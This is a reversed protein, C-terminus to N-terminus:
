ADRFLTRTAAGVTGGGAYWARTARPSSAREHNASWCPVLNAAVFGRRQRGGSAHLWRTQPEIVRAECWAGPEPLWGTEEWGVPAAKPQPPGWTPERAWSSEPAPPQARRPRLASHAGAPLMGRRGQNRLSALLRQVDDTRHVADVAGPAEGFLTGGVREEPSSGRDTEPTGPSPALLGDASSSSAVSLARLVGLEKRMQALRTAGLPPSSLLRPPSYAPRAKPPAHLPASVPRQTPSQSTAPTATSPALLTSSADHGERKTPATQPRAPSPAPSSLMRGGRVPPPRPTIPPSPTLRAVLSNAPPGSPLRHYKGSPLDYAHLLAPHRSAGSSAPLLLNSGDSAASSADSRNDSSDDSSDGEDSADSADSESADVALDGRLGASEPRDPNGESDQEDDQDHSDHQSVDDSSSGSRGGLQMGARGADGRQALQTRQQHDRSLGGPSGYRASAGKARDLRDRGPRELERGERSRGGGNGDRSSEEELLSLPPAKTDKDLAHTSVATASSCSGVSSIGNRQVAATSCSSGAAHSAEDRHGAEYHAGEYYAVAMAGAQPMSAGDPRVGSISSVMVTASAEEVGSEGDRGVVNGQVFRPLSPAAKVAKGFKALGVRGSGRASHIGGLGGTAGGRSAGFADIGTLQQMARSSTSSGCGSRAMLDALDTALSGGLADQTEAAVTACAEALLQAAHADDRSATSADAASSGSLRATATAASHGACSGGAPALGGSGGRSGNGPGQEGGSPVKGLPGGLLAAAHTLGPDSLLPQQNAGTSTSLAAALSSLSERESEDLRRTSQALTRKGGAAASRVSIRLYLKTLFDVTTLVSTPLDSVYLRPLTHSLSLLPTHPATHALALTPLVQLPVRLLVLSCAVFLCYPHM